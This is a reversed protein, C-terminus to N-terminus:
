DKICRVSFGYGKSISYYHVNGDVNSIGRYFANSSYDENSSWWYCVKGIWGFEGYDYRYGSPLASFETSNNNSIDNGVAGVVSSALWDTKSALAKAAFDSYGPNATVYSSLTLLESDTPVHWGV